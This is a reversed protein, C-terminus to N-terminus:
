PIFLVNPYSFDRHCNSATRQLCGVLHRDKLRSWVVMLMASWYRIYLDMRDQCMMQALATINRLSRDTKGSQVRGPTLLLDQVERLIELTIHNRWPQTCNAILMCNHRSVLPLALSKSPASDGGYPVFPEINFTARDIEPQVSDVAKKFIRRRRRRIFWVLLGVALALFVITGLTVGTIIAKVPSSSATSAAASATSTPHSSSTASSMSSTTNSVTTSACHTFTNNSFQIHNKTVTQRTYESSSNIIEM